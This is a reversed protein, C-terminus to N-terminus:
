SPTEKDLRSGLSFLGWTTLLIVPLAILQADLELWRGPGTWGLLRSMGYLGGVLAVCRLIHARSALM